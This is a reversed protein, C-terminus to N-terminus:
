FQIKHEVGFFDTEEDIELKLSNKGDIKYKFGVEKQTQDTSYEELQDRESEIATTLTFRDKSAEVVNYDEEKAIQWTEWVAVKNDTEFVLKDFATGEPMKSFDMEGSVIIHGWDKVVRSDAIEVIPLKGKLTAFLSRFKMEGLQGEGIYVRGNVDATQLPGKVKVEGDVIGALADGSNAFMKQIGALDFRDAEFQVETYHPPNIGMKASLSLNDGWKLRELLFIKEKYLIKGKANIDWFPHKNIVINEGRISFGAVDQKGYSFWVDGIVESGGINVQDLRYYIDSQGKENISAEIRMTGKKEKIPVLDLTICHTTPDLIGKVRLQGGWVMDCDYRADERRTLGGMISKKGEGFLMPAIHGFIEMKGPYKRLKLFGRIFPNDDSFYVAIKKIPNKKREFFKIKDLVVDWLKYSIEVREVVFTKKNNGVSFKVDRLIMDRFIGGTINGIKVTLKKGLFESVKIEAFNKIFHTQNYSFSWMASLSLLLIFLRV